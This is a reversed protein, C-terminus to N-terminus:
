LQSNMENESLVIDRIEKTVNVLYPSPAPVIVLFVGAAEAQISHV